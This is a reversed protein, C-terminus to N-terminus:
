RPRDEEESDDIHRCQTRQVQSHWRMPLPPRPPPSESWSLVTHLIWPDDCKAAAAAAASAATRLAAAAANEALNHRLETFSSESDAVASARAANTLGHSDRGNPRTRIRKVVPIWSLGSSM